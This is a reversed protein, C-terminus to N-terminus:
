RDWGEVKRGMQGDMWEDVGGRGGGWGDLWGDM